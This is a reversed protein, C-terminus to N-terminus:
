LHTVTSKKQKTKLEQQLQPVLTFWQKRLKSTSLINKSWFEHPELKRPVNATTTYEGGQIWTIMFTIQEISAKEIERLKRIDDSWDAIKVKKNEFTPFNYIIKQLLLEALFLDDQTYKQKSIEKAPAPKEEEAIEPEKIDKMQKSAKIKKGLKSMNHAWIIRQSNGSNEIKLFPEIELMLRIITRLSVGLLDAFYKNTAWCYGRQACLSSINCYLVRALASINKDNLVKNPIIAYGESFIDLMLDKKFPKVDPDKQM